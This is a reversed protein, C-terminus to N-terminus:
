ELTSITKIGKTVVELIYPTVFHPPFRSDGKFPNLNLTLDKLNSKWEIFLNSLALAGETELSCRLNFHTLKTLAKLYTFLVESEESEYFAYDIAL